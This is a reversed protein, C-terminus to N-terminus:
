FESARDLQAVPALLNFSELLGLKWGLIKRFLYKDSIIVSCTGKYKPNKRGILKTLKIITKNFQTLPIETVNSWYIETQKKNLLSHINIRIRFKHEDVNCIKRFWKMMFRIMEPDANAMEVQESTKRGEAWYLMIGSVFFVDSNKGKAEKRAESIIKKTASLRKEHNTFAGKIRGKAAGLKIKQLIKEKQDNTLEVDKLWGNLTGKSLNPIRAIIESFSFGHSRLERAFIRDNIRVRM